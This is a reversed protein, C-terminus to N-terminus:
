KVTLKELVAEIRKAAAELQDAAAGEADGTQSQLHTNAAKLETLSSEIESARAQQVTLDDAILMAAMLMLREDGIEGVMAVVDKIKADVIAALRRLQEEEGDNCAIKYAHGNVEVNVTAM